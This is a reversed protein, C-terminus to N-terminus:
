RRKKAPTLSLRGRQANGACDVAEVRLVIVGGDGTVLDYSVRGADGCEDDEALIWLGQEPGLPVDIGEFRLGKKRQPRFVVQTHDSDTEWEQDGIQLLRRGRRAPPPDEPDDDLYGERPRGASGIPGLGEIGWSLAPPEIDYRFHIPDSHHDKGLKDIAVVALTHEGVTWPGRLQDLTAEQDDIMPTWSEIGHDGGTVQVEIESGIGAIWHANIGSRPAMRPVTFGIRVEPPVADEDSWASSMSAGASLTGTADGIRIPLPEPNGEPVALLLRGTASVTASVQNGEDVTVAVPHGYDRLELSGEDVEVATDFGAKGRRTTSQLPATVTKTEGGHIVITRGESDTLELVGSIMSVDLESAGARSLLALNGCAKPIIFAWRWGASLLRVEFAEFPEDGAWEVNNYFSIEGSPKRYSMWKLIGGVPFTRESFRGAEIERLLDAPDGPWGADALLKLYDPRLEEFAAQLDSATVLTESVARSRGLDRIKRTASEEAAM